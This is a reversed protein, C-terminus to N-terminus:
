RPVGSLAVKYMDNPTVYGLWNGDPSFFVNYGREIIDLERWALKHTDRIRISGTTHHM